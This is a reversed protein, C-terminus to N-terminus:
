VHARGIERFRQGLLYLCEDMLLTLDIPKPQFPLLQSYNLLRRTYKSIRQTQAKIIQLEETCPPSNNPCKLQLAHTQAVIISIPTNIEHAVTDVLEGISALKSAQCIQQHLLDKQESLRREKEARIRKANILYLLYGVVIITVVIILIIFFFLRFRNSM